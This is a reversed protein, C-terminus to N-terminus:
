NLGLVKREEKSLKALAKLRVDEQDKKNKEEVNTLLTKEEINYGNAYAFYGYKDREVLQKSGYIGSKGSVYKIAEEGDSWVSDFVMPGRGETFDVNVNVIYVNKSNM